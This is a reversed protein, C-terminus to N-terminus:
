RLDDPLMSEDIDAIYERVRDPSNLASVRDPPWGHTGEHDDRVLGEDILRELAKTGVYEPVDATYASLVQGRDITRVSVWGDRWMSALIRAALEDVNPRGRSSM